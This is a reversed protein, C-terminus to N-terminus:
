QIIQENLHGGSCISRHILLLRSRGAAIPLGCDASLGEFSSPSLPRALIMSRVSGFARAAPYPDDSHDVIRPMPRAATRPSNRASAAAAIRTHALQDEFM